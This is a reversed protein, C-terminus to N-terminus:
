IRPLKVKKKTTKIEQTKGVIVNAELNTQKNTKTKIKIETKMTKLITIKQCPCSKQLIITVYTYADLWSM